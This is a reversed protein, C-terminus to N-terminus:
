LSLHRLHTLPLSPTLVRQLTFNALSFVLLLSGVLAALWRGGSLWLAGGLLAFGSLWLPSFVFWGWAACVQGFLYAITVVILFSRRLATLLSHQTGLASYQT